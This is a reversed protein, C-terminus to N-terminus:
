NKAELEIYRSQRKSKGNRGILPLTTNMADSSCNRHHKLPSDISSGNNTSQQSSASSAAAAAAAVSALLSAPPPHLNSDSSKRAKFLRM